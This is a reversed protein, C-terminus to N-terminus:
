LGSSKSCFLLSFCVKHLVSRRSPLYTDYIIPLYIEGIFVVSPYITLILHGSILFVSYIVIICYNISRVYGGSWRLTQAPCSQRRPALFTSSCSSLQVGPAQLGKPLRALRARGPNSDPTQPGHWNGIAMQWKGIIGYGM